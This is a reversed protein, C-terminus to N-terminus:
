TNYVIATTRYMCVLLCVALIALSAKGSPQNRARHFMHMDVVYKFAKLNMLYTLSTINHCTAIYSSM